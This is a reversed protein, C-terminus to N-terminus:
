ILQEFQMDESMSSRVICLITPPGNKVIESHSCFQQGVVVVVVVTAGVVVVAAGVVVVVVVVTAGVVVVVVVVTAGVVVVVVVVTAGVVVVVM